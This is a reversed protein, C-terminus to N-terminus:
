VFSVISLFFGIPVLCLCLDTTTLVRGAVAVAGQGGRTMVLNTNM